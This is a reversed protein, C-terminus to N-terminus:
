FEFILEYDKKAYFMLDVNQAFGNLPESFICYCSFVHSFRNIGYALLLPM